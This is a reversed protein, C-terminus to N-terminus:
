GEPNSRRVEAMLERFAAFPFHHKKSDLHPRNRLSYCGYTDSTFLWGLEPDDEWISDGESIHLPIEMRVTPCVAALATQARASLSDRSSADPLGVFQCILLLPLHQSSWRPDHREWYVLLADLEEPHLCYPHWCALDSWGMKSKTGSQGDVLFLELLCGDTELEYEILLSYRDGCRFSFEVIRHIAVHQRGQVEFQVKDERVPFDAQIIKLQRAVEDENVGEPELYFYPQWFERATFVLNM